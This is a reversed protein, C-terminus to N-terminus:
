AHLRKTLWPTAIMAVLSAAIWVTSIWALVSWVNVGAHSVFFALFLIIVSLFAASGEFLSSWLTAEAEHPALTKNKTLAVICATAWVAVYLIPTWAGGSSHVSAVIIAPLMACLTITAGLSLAAFVRDLTGRTAHLGKM